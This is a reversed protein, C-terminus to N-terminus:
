SKNGLSYISNADLEVGQQYNNMIQTKTSDLATARNMHFFKWKGEKPDMKYMTYPIFDKRFDAYFSSILDPNSKLATIVQNVWPYKLAVKKLAVLDYEYTGDENETRTCFDSPDIM